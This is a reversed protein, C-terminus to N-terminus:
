STRSKTKSSAKKATLVRLRIEILKRAECWFYGFFACQALAANLAVIEVSKVGTARAAVIAAAIDAPPMRRLCLLVMLSIGFLGAVLFWAENFSQALAARQVLPAIMAKTLEDVPGMAQNHFMAAPLGVLRAAAPDGSQLRTIFASVHGPTRQELITNILAIGIAGGLNRMLNFLGSADAIDEPPWGDLALRTAPLLCFMM